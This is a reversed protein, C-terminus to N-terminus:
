RQPPKAAEADAKDQKHAADRAQDTNLAKERARDARAQAKHAKHQQRAEAKAEKRADETTQASLTPIATGLSLALAATSLAAVSAFRLGKM